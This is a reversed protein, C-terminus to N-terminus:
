IQEKYERTYGPATPAYVAIIAIPTTGELTLVSRRDTVPEVDKM